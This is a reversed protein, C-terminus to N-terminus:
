PVYYEIILRPRSAAAANGSYLSLYNAVANNNDDLKFRLRIQTLGSGTALKNIYAKASTLNLTYWGGSLTPTFPGITKGAAAQWDTLQLVSTGFVGKRIDAMFGQFVTVPNGGGVIGQRKLKLTVKTIVANDPLGSTNFSLISRYQKRAADDGLRLTTAISNMTRGVNSNEASELVWGDQTATSYITVISPVGESQENVNSYAGSYGGEAYLKGDVAALGLTRRGVNLRQFSTWTNTSPNYKECSDLYSSWGGGCVYLYNGNGVVGPGGRATALSAKTTWTNTSPNYEEVYNFDATSSDRGGVVYIKGNVVGAGAYGRAYTMPACSSWINTSVDYVYCTNVFAGASNNGGFVYLRNSLAAVAAGSRAEPMSAVSSWSNTAPNYVEVVALPTSGNYGGPVYIKNAIVAAGTNSVGTPKPAKTTWTNSTPNYEELTTEFAQASWNEALISNEGANKLQSAFLPSEGGIVYIKGNVAAAAPRSRPVSMPAKTVWTTPDLRAVHLTLNGGDDSYAAVEIYYTTGPTVPVQVKSQLGSADDNCAVSVLGGRTGTWVALVTDYSSGFTDIILSEALSPTYRYWVTKYKQGSVCTFSPDDLATTAGATDQSNSYALTGIATALDFDDNSVFRLVNLSLIGGGSIYGAVEIYYTQGQTVPVQLYSQLGGSDDNCAVSTLSGRMGTWVALVTDYASGFTNIVLDESQAATYRYWVSNYKPGSVCTFNPDDPATTAGSTDISDNFNLSSIVTASDFDDNAAPPASYNMETALTAERVETCDAATIGSTGVLNNCAQYLASYLALYDSSSTLINAQAEYYIKAVKTIGLGTITYGNFTDGDTMLYVAKNNVGSNTHVGGNDNSGHYYYPSTMRDPDGFLTPDKMNRIAGISTDEGVHWRVSASDNGLGNTLDVFEGWLDSFSENIAGPQYAYVLNSEYETVGHTMEHAVVDDTVIFCGDGYTMQVGDWFANCYGSDYHVTSILAMGANDISDRGHYTSYFDYTNGAYVHANIAHTDGGSCNPNSENCILTGPRTTTNNATYTLRNRATDVQNIDLVIRGTHADVLVLHRIPALARSRVEMRWVLSPTGGEPVFSAPNFIWLEPKSVTLKDGSLSYAGAVAQLASERAASIGVTAKPNVKGTQQISSNVLIVKGSVELQMVLEGGLVPVGRYVQQFRVLSRNGDIARSVKLVLQTSQVQVGFLSGCESLYNRAAEEPGASEQLAGVQPLTKGAEAGAFVVLGTQANQAAQNDGFCYDVLKEQPPNPQASSRAEAGRWGGAFILAAVGAFALLGRLLYSGSHFRFTKM